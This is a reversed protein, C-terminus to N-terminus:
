ELVHDKYLRLRKETLTLGQPETHVFIKKIPSLAHQINM